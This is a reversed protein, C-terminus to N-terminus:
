FKFQKRIDKENNTKTLKAILKERDNISHNIVLLLLLYDERKPHLLTGLDALTVLQRNLEELEALESKDKSELASETKSHFFHTKKM